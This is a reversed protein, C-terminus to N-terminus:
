ACLEPVPSDSMEWLVGLPGAMSGEGNRVTAPSESAASGYPPAAQNWMPQPVLNRGRSVWGLAAGGAGLTTPSPSPAGTLDM